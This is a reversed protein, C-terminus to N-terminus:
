LEVSIIKGWKVGVREAEGLTAAKELKRWRGGDARTTTSIQKSRATRQRGTDDVVADDGGDDVGTVEEQGHGEDGVAV